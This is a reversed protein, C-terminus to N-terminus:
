AVPQLDIEFSQSPKSIGVVIAEFIRWGEGSTLILIRPFAFRCSVVIQCIGSLTRRSLTLVANQYGPAYALVYESIWTNDAESVEDVENDYDVTVQLRHLDGVYTEVLFPGLHFAQRAGPGLQSTGINFSREHTVITSSVHINQVSITIHSDDTDFWDQGTNVVPM